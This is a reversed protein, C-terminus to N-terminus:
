GFVALAVELRAIDVHLDGAPRVDSLRVVLGGHEVINTLSSPLIHPVRLTSTM